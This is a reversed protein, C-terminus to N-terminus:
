YSVNKLYLGCAPATPGAKSRDKANLIDIISEPKIKKKGIKCLTGVIIRVQKHLFSPATINIQIVESLKSVNIANITKVPSSAQCQACRFSSLNHTGILASAAQQMAEIDIPAKLLYAKNYELALPSERNIIKYLYSRSKASFRAHFNFDVKSINLISIKRPKLYFNIANLINQTYLNKELDFHAVQGLAHVGSDTRGAGFVKVKEGSFQYISKEICEQVGTSSIQTQWGNFESGDYEITIKYRQM